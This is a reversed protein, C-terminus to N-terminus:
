HKTTLLGAWGWPCESMKLYVIGVEQMSSAIHTSPFPATSVGRHLSM